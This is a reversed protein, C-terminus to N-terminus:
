YRSAGLLLIAIDLFAHANATDNPPTTLQDIACDNTNNCEAWSSIASMARLIQSDVTTMTIELLKFRSSGQAVGCSLTCADLYQLIMDLDLTM